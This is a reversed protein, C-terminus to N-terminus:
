QVPSQNSVLVVHALLGNFAPSSTFEGHGTLMEHFGEAHMISHRSEVQGSEAQDVAAVTGVQYSDNLPGLTVVAVVALSAAMAFLGVPKWIGIGADPGAIRNERSSRDPAIVTPEAQLRASIKETLDAGVQDVEGRVIDGILQYRQWTKGAPEHNIMKDIVVVQQDPMLEQDILQSIRENM